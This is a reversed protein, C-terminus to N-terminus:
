LLWLRQKVKMEGYSLTKDDDREPDPGTQTTINVKPCTEVQATAEVPAAVEVLAPPVEYRCFIGCNLLSFCAGASAFIWKKASQDRPSKFSIKSLYNKLQIWHNIYPKRKHFQRWIFKM